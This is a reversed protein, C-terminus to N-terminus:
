DWSRSYFIGVSNDTGSAARVRFGRGLLFELGVVTQAATLGQEFTLYVRDSLQKGVAVVQGQLESGGQLRIDDLGMALAVRRGIPISNPDELLAAAGASLLVADTATATALSRGLVLWALAEGEPLPPNSVLRVAPTRVSGTLEVGAEVALGRRVARIDLAPDDVPGDFILRGREIDLRQGLFFYTGRETRVAGKATLRGRDATAVRLQGALWADLGAGLVHFERGFDVDLALSLPVETRAAPQPREPRGVVVIDDDLTAGRGRAFEIYAERAALKGAAALRGGAFAATGEGDLILRLDPRSLLRLADARWAITTAGRVPDRPAAGRATFRGEGGAIEFAELVLAEDTLTVTGHGNALRVGYPPFQIGIGRAEVRGSTLRPAQLTGAAALTGRVAGDFLLDGRALTSLPRLSAIEGRAALRIPAEPLIVGAEAGPVRDIELTAQGAGLSTTAVDLRAAVADDVLRADLALRTLGLPFAPAEGLAVDGSERALSVTGNLRPTLDVSWAGALLLTTAIERREPLLALFPALAVGTFRGASALRGDEWRLHELTVEGDGLRAATAGVAVRDAALELAAPRTFAIPFRGRNVLTELAGQWSRERWGGVLRAALDVDAGSTRVDIVHRALRGNVRVSAAELAIRPAALTRARLELALAPDADASVAGRADIAQARYGAYAVREGTLGFEVAPRALAGRLTATGSLGGSLRPDIEALRPADIRLALAEAARGLSGEAALQNAGIRLTASVERVADPELALRGRGSLPATRWRSAVLEAELDARWTPALAGAASIRGALRADPFDGLAAPDFRDLVASVRFARKGTLGVTGEATAAGADAAVRARRVIFEDGRRAGDLELEIGREALRARVAQERAGLTADLRGALRTRRLPRHIAQLDLGRVVLALDAREAALTATGTAAGAPGFDARLASLTVRGAEFRFPSSLGLLPLRRDTLPGAAANRAAVEGDIRNATSSAATLELALRTTPTSPDLRALDIAAAELRGAELWREAFPALRLRATAKGGALAADLAVELRELSGGLRARLAEMRLQPAPELELAGDLAFPRRAALRVSGRLTGAATRAVLARIRHEGPTGAYGLEVAEAALATDADRWVFRDVRARAITLAIPLGISEPTTTPTPKLAVEVEGAALTALRIRGALLASASWKAAVDALTVVVDEDEYRVRKARVTGGLAGSPAEIALRGGAAAVARAAVWRVATESTALWAAGGALAAAILVAAVILIPKRRM